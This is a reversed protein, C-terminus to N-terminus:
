VCSVDCAAATPSSGNAREAAAAAAASPAAPPGPVTAAARAHATRRPAGASPAKGRVTVTLPTTRPSKIFWATSATRASCAVAARSTRAPWM